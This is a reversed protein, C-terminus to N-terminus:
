PEDGGIVHLFPVFDAGGLARVFEPDIRAYRELHDPISAGAEVERLFYGLPAPSLRHLNEVLRQRRLRAHSEGRKKEQAPGQSATNPQFDAASSSMELPGGEQGPPPGVRAQTM